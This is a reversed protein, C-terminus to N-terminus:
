PCPTTGPQMIAGVRVNMGGVITVVQLQCNFGAATIRRQYAGAPLATSTFQGTSDTTGTWTGIRVVAGPIPTLNPRVVRGSTTGVGTTVTPTSVPTATRTPVPTPTGTPGPTPTRTPVPTLTPGPTPAPSSGLANQLRIVETFGTNGNTDTVAAYVHAWRRTWGASAWTHTFPPATQTAVVREDVYYVVRSIGVASTVNVQFAVSAGLAANDTLGVLSAQPPALPSSVPAALPDLWADTSVNLLADGDPRPRDRRTLRFNVPLGTTGSYGSVAYWSNANRQWGFDFPRSTGFRSDTLSLYTAACRSSVPNSEETGFGCTSHDQSVDVQHGAFTSRVVTAPRAPNNAIFYGAIFVGAETPYALTGYLRSDALMWGVTTTQLNYRRNEFLLARHVKMNNGYAGWQIGAYQNRWARFDVIHDVPGGNVWTFLGSGRTSHAENRVMVLVPYGPTTRTQEAIHYGSPDGNSWTGSAVNGILASNHSHIWFGSARHRSDSPSRLQGERYVVRAALNGVLVNDVSHMGEAIEGVFYGVGSARYGVTDEVTIGSSAHINMFNNDSRWISAGRVRMGRSTDGMLHFHVPYRGVCAFNGLNRFEAYGIGGTAGNLYITHGQMARGPYKSTVVVNRSLLAVEGAVDGTAEHLYQLPSDVTIETVGARRVVQRIQREEYQPYVQAQGYNLSPQDTPTVVIWAGVPWDTVDGAVQVTSTGVAAPAALKTWTARVPSEFVDWRGYVWVGIDGEVFASGGTCAAGSPIVLRLEASATAPIPDGPNGMDLTGGRDVIVNGVDLRTYRDRAFSLSGLIQLRGVEVDSFVEYVVSHGTAILVSEGAGPVHAASWMSPDSWRGSRVSQVTATQALLQPMTQHPIPFAGVLLALCVVVFVVTRGGVM